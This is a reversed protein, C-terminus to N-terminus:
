NIKFKFIGEFFFILFIMLCRQVKLIKQYQDRCKRIPGRVKKKKKYSEIIDNLKKIIKKM